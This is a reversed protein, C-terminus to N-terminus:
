GISPMPSKVNTQVSPYVVPLIFSVRQVVQNSTTNESSAGVSMVKLSISGKKDKKLDEFVTIAVDFSVERVNRSRGNITCLGTGVLSPSVVASEKPMDLCHVDQLEHIAAFLENVVTVVYEKLEM